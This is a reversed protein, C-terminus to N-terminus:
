RDDLDAEAAVLALGADDDLHVAGGFPPPQLADTRQAQAQLQLAQVNGNTKAPLPLAQDARPAHVGVAAGRAQLDGQGPRHVDDATEQEGGGVALGTIAVDDVQGGAARGRGRSQRGPGKGGAKGLDGDRRHVSALHDDDVGAMPALIGPGQAWAHVLLVQSKGGGLRQAPPQLAIAAVLHHQGARAVTENGQLVPHLDGAM